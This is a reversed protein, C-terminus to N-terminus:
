KLELKKSVIVDVIDSVKIIKAAEKDPIEIKFNDEIALVIEVADLSDASLDEKLKSDLSVEHEKKDLSTSVISIVKERIQDDSMEILPISM